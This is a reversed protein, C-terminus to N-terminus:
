LGTVLECARNWHTVRHESDIVFTAVPTGQVLAEIGILDSASEHANALDSM